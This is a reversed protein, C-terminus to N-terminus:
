SGQDEEQPSGDALLMNFEEDSPPTGGWIDRDASAPAATRRRPSGVAVGRSQLHALMATVAVTRVRRYRVLDSRLNPM